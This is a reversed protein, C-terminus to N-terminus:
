GHPSGRADRPVPHPHPCRDSGGATAHLRALQGFVNPSGDAVPSPEEQALGVDGQREFGRGGRLAASGRGSRMLVGLNFRKRQVWWKIEARNMLKTQWEPFAAAKGGERLLLPQYGNAFVDDIIENMASM